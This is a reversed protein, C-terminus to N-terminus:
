PTGDKLKLLLLRAAERIDPRNIIASVVAVGDVGTGMVGPANEADIGGIAVVPIHVASKIRRLEELSVKETNQKTTTPYVAGVGLYDAGQAELSLAEEISSASAGIIRHSGLLKRAVPVPLDEPGLHVGAADVALAIDVRDNIILPIGYQDTVAKVKSALDLYDSSSIEKERLQVFTAGGIIAQEVCEELCRGCLPRRDTVLYLTLKLKKRTMGM